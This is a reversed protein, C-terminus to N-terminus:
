IWYHMHKINKLNVAFYVYLVALHKLQSITLVVFPEFVKIQIVICFPCIM